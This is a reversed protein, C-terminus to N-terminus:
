KGLVEACRACLHGEEYEKTNRVNRCRDCKEGEAKHVHAGKETSLTFTVSSVGFYRAAEDAELEKLLDFLDKNDVSLHLSAENSAGYEGNARGEELAKLAVDRLAIFEDYYKEVEGVYEESVEPFLELQPSEKKKGPLAFYVEEMTFSLIPNYLM